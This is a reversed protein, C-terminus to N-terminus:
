RPAAERAVLERWEDLRGTVGLAAIYGMDLPAAPLQRGSASAAGCQALLTDAIYVAAAPDLGNRAPRPEHHYAVSEVVDHSLGWLALLHAGVEAHTVGTHDREVEVLPRQQDNAAILAAGLHEPQQAALVLMGIDHLLGAAVADDRRPDDHLMQHVVRGVVTGHRELEEISFHPIPQRTPLAEFAGASLVLTRVTNLGLYVVAQEIQSVHRRPGFFASNALQLVKAAVAVDQSILAAAETPTASPDGLLSTLEAFLRPVPPLSATGTAARRLDERRTLDNLACSREVVGTLEDIDCPKALFRHAVTAARAVVEVEAFGSLVIRVTDPHLRQVHGLLAAGDMGPMRMDSVVVDYPQRDLEALAAEGDSVFTMRWERRRPRLADRLSELIHMEDDVFLIQKM